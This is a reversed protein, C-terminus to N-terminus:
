FKNLSIPQTGTTLTSCWAIAAVWRTCVAASSLVLPPIYTLGELVFLFPLNVKLPFSLSLSESISKWLFLFWHFLLRCELAKSFALAPCCVPLSKAAVASRLFKDCKTQQGLSTCVYGLWGLITLPLLCIQLNPGWDRCCCWYIEWSGCLKCFWLTRTRVCPRAHVCVCVCSERRWGPRQRCVM